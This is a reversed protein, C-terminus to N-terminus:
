TRRLRVILGREALLNALVTDHEDLWWICQEPNAEVGWDALDILTPPVWSVLYNLGGAEAIYGVWTDWPPVNDVDIFGCTALQAAGDALNADPEYALLRGGALNIAPRL